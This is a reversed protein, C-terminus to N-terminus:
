VRPRGSTIALYEEVAKNQAATDIAPTLTGNFEAYLRVANWANREPNTWGAFRGMRIDAAARGPSMGMQHRTRVESAMLELYARTEALEKKSGVPGHGPVIVDV